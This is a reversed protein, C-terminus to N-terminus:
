MPGITVRRSDRDGGYLIKLGEPLVIQDRARSTDLLTNIQEM